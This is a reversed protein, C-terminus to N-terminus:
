AHLVAGQRSMRLWSNPPVPQWKGERSDLPESAVMSGSESERVYLTPPKPDSSFRFAFVQEGDALAAAFRLPETVGAQRMLNMTDELVTPVAQDPTEGAEIRALALLFLLESDTAGKRAAYLADPLRAELQRRVRAYGGIQGNHMFM